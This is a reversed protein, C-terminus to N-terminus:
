NGQYLVFEVYPSMMFAVANCVYLLLLLQRRQKFRCLVQVFWPYSIILFFFTLREAAASALVQSAVLLIVAFCGPILFNDISKRGLLTVSAAIIIALVALVFSLDRGTEAQSKFQGAYPLLLVILLTGLLAFAKRLLSNKNVFIYPVYIAAANHILPVFVAFVRYRRLGEFFLMCIISAVYQRLTNQYGALFPFYVYAFLFVSPSYYYKRVVFWICIGSVLDLFVFFVWTEEFIQYFQHQTWWFIIERQTYFNKGLYSAANAFNQVDTDYEDFRVVLSLSIIFTFAIFFNLKLHKNLLLLLCSMVFISLYAAQEVM